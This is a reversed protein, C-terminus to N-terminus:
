DGPDVLGQLYAVRLAEDRTSVGLKRYMTRVQSKVTNSSVSLAAAIEGLSGTARLQALVDIERPTLSVRAAAPPFPAPMGRWREISEAGVGLDEALQLLAERRASPLLVLPSTTGHVEAIAAFRRLAAEALPRDGLELSASARLLDAAATLRPGADPTTGGLKELALDPRQELLLLAAELVSGLADGKGLVRLATHAAGLRGLAAYLMARAAAAVRRDQTSLRARPRDVGERAELTSLGVEPEGRWLAAVARLVVVLMGHELNARDRLQEVLRDAERGDGADLALIGAAVHALSGVYGDRLETPYGAADIQALTAAAAASEGRAAEVLAVMSAAGLADPTGVALAQASIGVREAALRAEALRGARFLSLAGQYRYAEEQEAIEELDVPAAEDLLATMRLAAAASEDARGTIRLVVSEILALGVREAVRQRPRLARSAGLALTLLELAKLREGRANAALGLVIALFPLRAVFRFPVRQLIAAAGRSRLLTIGGHLVVDSARVYDEADVAHRLAPLYQRRAEAAASALLSAHRYHEPHDRRLDDRLVERVLPHYRYRVVGAVDRRMVLGETELLALLEGVRGPEAGSLHAALAADVDDPISTVSAFGSLEAGRTAFLHRLHDSLTAHASTRLGGRGSGALLARLLLPNGGSAALLEAATGHAPAPGALAEVEEIALVFADPELVTVDLTLAQRPAELEGRTRTGVLVVLGPCARLLALVDEEILPDRLEHADDILLVLDGAARVISLLERRLEERDAVDELSTRTALGAGVAADLVANWFATRSGIDAEVTVWVGPLSQAVAWQALLVTKGSGGPARVVTLPTRGLAQALAARPLMGEPVRPVGVIGREIKGM